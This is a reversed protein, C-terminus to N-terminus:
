PWGVRNLEVTEATADFAGSLRDGQLFLTLVISDQFVWGPPLVEYDRYTVIYAHSIECFEVDALYIPFATTAGSDPGPGFVIRAQMSHENQRWVEMNVGHRRGAVNTYIGSWTGAVRDALARDRYWTFSVFDVHVRAFSFRFGPDNLAALVDRASSFRMPELFGDDDSVLRGREDDFHVAEGFGGFTNFMQTDLSLIRSNGIHRWRGEQFGELIADFRHNSFDVFLERLEPAQHGGARMIAYILSTHQQVFLQGDGPHGLGSMPMRDVRVGGHEYVFSTTVLGLPHHHTLLAFENCLYVSFTSAEVPFASLEDGMYNAEVYEAMAMKLRDQAQVEQALYPQPMEPPQSLAPEPPAALEYEVQPSTGGLGNWALFIALVVVAAISACALILKNASKKEPMAARRSKPIAEVEYADYEDDDEEYDDWDNAHRYTGAVTRDDHGQMTVDYRSSTGVLIETSDEHRYTGILIETRDNERPMRMPMPRSQVAAQVPANMKEGSLEELAERMQTPSAFRRRPDFNCAKLVIANLEPAIGNIKPLPEGQMRRWMAEERHQPNLIAPADPMFPARNQNLFRYMVIGLSYMDVNSNYNHGNWVEPAMYTETGTKKTLGMSTREIQRAVGFDGLKYDGFQSIFINGPKIDRHIINKIAFLELARCIHIGLKVVEYRSLPKEIVHDSLSTLLEMRILIDYGIGDAKPVAKHDELSVINSNGKFESMIEIERVLDIVLSHFFSKLSVDNMGESMLYRLETENQPISILKVASHYAKGFEKRWTKYVKGYSGEGILSEVYWAGWLPEYQRIDTM